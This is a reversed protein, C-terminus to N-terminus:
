LTLGKKCNPCKVTGDKSIKMDRFVEKSIAYGCHPCKYRIEDESSNRVGGSIAEIQEDPLRELSEKGMTSVEM